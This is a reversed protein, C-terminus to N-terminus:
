GGCIHLYRLVFCLVVTEAFLIGWIALRLREKHLAMVCIRTLLVGYGGFITLFLAMVSLRASKGFLLVFSEPFFKQWIQVALQSVLLSTVVFNTYYVALYLCSSIM